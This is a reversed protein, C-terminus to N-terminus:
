KDWTRNALHHLVASRLIHGPTVPDRNGIHTRNPIVGDLLQHCRKIQRHATPIHVLVGLLDASTPYRAQPDTAMGRAIVRDIAPPLGTLAALSPLQGSLHILGNVEVLPVYSAVPAAAEPLTLGLEALKTDVRDTM